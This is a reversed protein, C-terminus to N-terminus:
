KGKKKKKKKKSFFLEVLKAAEPTEFRVFGVGDGYVRSQTIVGFQKFLDDLEVQTCEKRLGKVYLNHEDLEMTTTANANGGEDHMDTEKRLNPYTGNLYPELMVAVGVFVFLCLVYM